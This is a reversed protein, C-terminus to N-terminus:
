NFPLEEDFGDPINMFGTDHKPAPGGLFPTNGAQAPGTYPKDEPVEADKLGSVSRIQVVRTWWKLSGDRAPFQERGMVAGFKKGSLTKENGEVGFQFLFGPNSKEISTIIGKFFPLSDGGIVQKHVGRWKADSSNKKASEYLKKYFEKYEGEAIDFLIALKQKKNEEIVSAQKIQCVYCGAPLSRTEGTFAWSEDYGQPKQIM